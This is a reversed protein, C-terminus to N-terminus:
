HTKIRTTVALMLELAQRTAKNSNGGLRQEKEMLIVSGGRDLISLAAAMGALGSGIVIADPVTLTKTTQSSLSLLSTGYFLVAVIIGGCTLIMMSVSRQKCSRFLLPTGKVNGSQPLTKRIRHNWGTPSPQRRHIAATPEQIM